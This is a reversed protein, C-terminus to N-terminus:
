KKECRATSIEQNIIKEPLKALQKRLDRTVEQHCQLCLVRLNELTTQGGRAIPVIHDAHWCPSGIKTAPLGHQVLIEKVEEYFPKGQWEALLDDLKGCDLGCLACIGKDREFVQQRLRPSRKASLPHKSM